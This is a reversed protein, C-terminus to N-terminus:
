SPAIGYTLGETDRVTSLLRGTFGRGLVNTGVSLPLFDADAYRLGTPEGMIVSVSEKGPVNVTLEKATKSRNQPAATGAAAPRRELRRVCKKVEAQISAPEVDGVVVMTAYDPGFYKDHFAKIDDVTPKKLAAIREEPTLRYQPHGAPFM